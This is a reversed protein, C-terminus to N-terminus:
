RLVFHQKEKFEPRSLLIGSHYLDISMSVSTLSKANEWSNTQKTSQHISPLVVFGNSLVSKYASVLSVWDNEEDSNLLVITATLMPNSGMPMGYVSSLRLVLEQTSSSIRNGEEDRLVQEVFRYVFPSHTGHRGRAQMRFQLYQFVAHLTM